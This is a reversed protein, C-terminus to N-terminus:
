WFIATRHQVQTDPNSYPISMLRWVGIFDTEIHDTFLYYDFREDVVKPQRIDDYGGIVATYIAIKKM